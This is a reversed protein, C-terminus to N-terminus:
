AAMRVSGPCVYTGVSLSPVYNPESSGIQVDANFGSPSWCNPFRKTQRAGHSGGEGSLSLRHYSCCTSQFPCAKQQCLCNFAYLHYGHTHVASSFGCEQSQLRNYTGRHGSLQQKRGLKQLLDGYMLLCQSEGGFCTVNSHRLENPESWDFAPQNVSLFRRSDLQSIAHM